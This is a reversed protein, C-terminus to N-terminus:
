KCTHGRRALKQLKRDVCKLLAHAGHQHAVVAHLAVQVLRCAQRSTVIRILSRVAIRTLFDPKHLNRPGAGCTQQETRPPLARVHKAWRRRRQLGFNRAELSAPVCASVCVYMSRKCVRCARVCTHVCACQSLRGSLSFWLSRAHSSQLRVAFNEFACACVSLRVSM